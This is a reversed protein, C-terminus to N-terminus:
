YYGPRSGWPSGFPNNNPLSNGYGMYQQNNMGGAGGGAFLSGFGSQPSTAYLGAGGARALWDPSGQVSDQANTSNPLGHLLGLQRMLQGFQSNQEQLGYQQNGAMLQDGLSQRQLNMAQQNFDGNIGQLALNRNTEFDGMARNTISDRDGKGSGGANMFSALRGRSEDFNKNAFGLAADRQDQFPALYKQLGAQSFDPTGFSNLANQQFQNFGPANLSGPQGQAQGLQSAFTDWLKQMQPSMAAYGSQSFGRQGGEEGGLVSGILSALAIGEM